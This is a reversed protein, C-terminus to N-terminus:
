DLARRWGEHPHEQQRIIEYIGPNAFRFTEHTDHQRMHVLDVNPKNIVLYARNNDNAHEFFEVGEEARMVHHHGTESHTVVYDSGCKEGPKLNDPLEACPRILVDGQAIPHTGEYIKM